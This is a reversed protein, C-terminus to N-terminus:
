AQETTASHLVSTGILSDLDKGATDHIFNALNEAVLSKM